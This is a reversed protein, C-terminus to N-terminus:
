PTGELTTGDSPTGDPMGIPVGEARVSLKPVPGAPVTRPAEDAVAKKKVGGERQSQKLAV